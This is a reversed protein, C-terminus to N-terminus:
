APVHGVHIQTLPAVYFIQEQGDEESAQRIREALWQMLPRVNTKWGDQDQKAMNERPKLDLILAGLVEWAVSRRLHNGVSILMAEPNLLDQLATQLAEKAEESGHKQVTSVLTQFANQHGASWVTLLSVFDRGDQEKKWGPEIDELQSSVAFLKDVLLYASVRSQLIKIHWSKDPLYQRLTEYSKPLQDHLCSLLPGFEAREMAEIDKPDCHHTRLFERLWRKTERAQQSLMSDVMLAWRPRDSLPVSQIEVNLILTPRQNHFSIEPLAPKLWDKETLLRKEDLSCAVSALTELLKWIVELQPQPYLHGEHVIARTLVSLLAEQVSPHFEQRSISQLEQSTEELSLGSFPQVVCTILYKFTSIKIEPEEKTGAESKKSIRDSVLSKFRRSEFDCDTDHCM